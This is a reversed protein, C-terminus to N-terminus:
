PMSPHNVHCDTLHTVEYHMTAKDNCSNLQIKSHHEEEDVHGDEISEQSEAVRCDEGVQWNYSYDHVFIQRVRSDKSIWLKIFLKLM